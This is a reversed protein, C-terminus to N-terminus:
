SKTWSNTNFSGTGFRSGTTYDCINATGEEMVTIPIWEEGNKAFVCRYVVAKGFFTTLPDTTMYITMENGSYGDSVNENKLLIKVEKDEGNINVNLNGEFLADIASKDTGNAGPVNSIYSSNRDNQTNNMDSMLQNYSTEGNLIECFKEMADSVTTEDDNSPIDDFPLFEFNVISNLVRNTVTVKDKYSFTVPFTLTSHPQVKWDEHKKQMTTSIEIDTNDYASADEFHKMVNYGYVVDSNNYVTVEITLKSSRDAGLTATSNLTTSSYGNIRVDTGSPVSVDYIFVGIPPTSEVVGQIDLMDTVRAYGIGVICFLLPLVSYLIIKQWRKIM